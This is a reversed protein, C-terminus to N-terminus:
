MPAVRGADIAAEVRVRKRPCVQDGTTECDCRPVVTDRVQISFNGDASINNSEQAIFQLFESSQEGGEAM